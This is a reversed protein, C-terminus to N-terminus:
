GWGYIWNSLNRTNPLTTTHDCLANSIVRASPRTSGAPTSLGDSYAAPAFRMLDADTVGWTKHFPNNLKGDLSPV